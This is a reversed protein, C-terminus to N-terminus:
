YHWARWCDGVWGIDAWSARLLNAGGTEGYNEGHLRGKPQDYVMGLKFDFRRARLSGLSRSHHKGIHVYCTNREEIITSL